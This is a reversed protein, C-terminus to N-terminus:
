GLFQGERKGSVALTGQDNVALAGQDGEVAPTSQGGRVAAGQSDKVAPARHKVELDIAPFCKEMLKGWELKCEDMKSRCDMPEDPHFKGMHKRMSRMHKFSLSCHLCFFVNGYHHTVHDKQSKWCSM